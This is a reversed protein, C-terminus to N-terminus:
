ARWGEGGCRRNKTRRTRVFELVVKGAMGVPSRGKTNVRARERADRITRPHM